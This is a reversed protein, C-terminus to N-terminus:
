NVSIRDGLQITFRTLAAKWNRTHMTRKQSFNRLTPNSLETLAEDSPIGGREQKTEVAWHEGVRHRQDNLHGKPNGGPLRFGTEPYLGFTKCPALRVSAATGAAPALLVMAQKESPWMLPFVHDCGGDLSFDDLRVGTSGIVSTAWFHLHGQQGGADVFQSGV